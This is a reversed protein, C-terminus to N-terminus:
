RRKKFYSCIFCKAEKVFKVPVCGDVEMCLIFENGTTKQIGNINHTCDWCKKKKGKLWYDNDPRIVNNDM